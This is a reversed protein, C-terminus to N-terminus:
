HWPTQLVTAKYCLKFSPMTIIGEATDINNLNTKTKNGPSMQAEEMYVKLNSFFDAFFQMSINIPIANLRHIAKLLVAM